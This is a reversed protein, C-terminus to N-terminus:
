TGSIVPAHLLEGSLPFPLSVPVARYRVHSVSPFEGDSVHHTGLLNVRPMIMGLRWLRLEWEMRPVRPTLECSEYEPWPSKCTTSALISSGPM